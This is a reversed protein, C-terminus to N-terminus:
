GSRGRRRETFSDIGHALPDAGSGHAFDMRLSRRIRASDGRKGPSGGFRINARIM